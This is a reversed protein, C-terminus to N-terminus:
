KGDDEFELTNSEPTSNLRSGQEIRQNIQQLKAQATKVLDPDGDYNELLAELAARANYLDGKESLIDALLILSRAVWDPYGSSEKNANICIEQAIDLDRRMYYIYAILYRAEATQENDSLRTVQNFAALAKDYNKQDYAIKGIYFNATAVQGPNAAPNNAVKNALETVAQTKNIRYASQLAGIQAQFKIDPSNAALELKTYLEYAKEFNQEHNYAIIASKELAKYYYKSQGKTVVYEYDKLAESYQKLVSHSEGRHFHAILLNRGNPYRRIYSTFAEVARQYNGNEFQVEAARFNISDKTSSGVQYGPITELFAVFDDPRGLDDVYIEELASLADSAENSEPNNSFVQKYYNIAADYNGQNYSILGLKLLAQNVLDSKGRYDSVLKRLPQAAQGLKGIEQYTIGMQLLADDAYESNPYEKTIKELALLKDTTRGRLGEIIAKQYIAYVYGKYRRNIAEDYFKVADNYQNRKFLCDGARLTADGLVQSKLYPSQIFPANRKIGAVVEQFYGLAGSYNKKKLYNYGQTYNATFISSEDPLGTQTKALTLFQGMQRISSDYQKEDHAIEALWFTTLAKINTSIPMELSKTFFRKASQVDGEKYLQLGRYYSVRQFTERLEPTKNQLNDIISMAKEYDRTNLFIDSMLTQAETHYKSTPPISQLATIAERDFKLEYSLKAYNFLAEEQISKNYNMRGAAAFANRASHRNKIKLYCDGLNYLANQGLASNVASLQEFNSIANKYNATKYQTYGLQYFEEERLKGSKEAYYELYPLANRYNEKEFYSQGILQQIEKKKRIQTDELKPIAYRLLEDYKGQAFYIQCLYYPIHPKYKSSAEVVSFSRVASDYDGEFFYCLGLYYNTPYFYRNTVGKIQKFNAKARSFQKKVFHAYGTKFQVESQQESPLNYSPIRSFYEIANEYDKSDFYYNAMEILAQNSIPDPSYNRIFDMILKEGDPQKLRVATKAYYLEAKTKLFESEPANVPLLLDLTKKFEKQAKGYIGNDFFESGRKYTENAETFVTTKQAVLFVSYFALLSFILQKKIQM